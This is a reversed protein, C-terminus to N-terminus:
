IGQYIFLTVTLIVLWVIWNIKEQNRKTMVLEIMFIGIPLFFFIVGIDTVILKPNFFLPSVWPWIVLHLNESIKCKEKKETDYAPLLLEAKKVKFYTYINFLLLILTISIFLIYNKKEPYSAYCYVGSYVMQWLIIIRKHRNKSYKIAHNVFGGFLYIYLTLGIYDIGKIYLYILEMILCFIFSISIYCFLSKRKNM